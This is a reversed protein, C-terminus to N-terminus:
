FTHDAAADHRIVTEITADLGNGLVVSGTLEISGSEDILELSANEVTSTKDFPLYDLLAELAPFQETLEALQIKTATRLQELDTGRNNITM